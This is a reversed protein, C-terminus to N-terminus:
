YGGGLLVCSIMEGTAHSSVETQRCSSAISGTLRSIYWRQAVSSPNLDGNSAGSRREGTSSRQDLGRLGAPDDRVGPRVTCKPRMVVLRRKSNLSLSQM